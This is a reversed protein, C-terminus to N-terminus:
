VTDKEDIRLISKSLRIADNLAEKILPDTQKEALSLMIEMQNLIIQRQFNRKEIELIM